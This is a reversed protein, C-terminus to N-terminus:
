EACPQYVPKHERRGYSVCQHANWNCVFLQFNDTWVKAKGEPWKRLLGVSCSTSSAALHSCRDWRNNGTTLIVVRKFRLTKKLAPLIALTWVHRLCTEYITLWQRFCSKLDTKCVLLGFLGIVNGVIYKAGMSLKLSDCHIQPLRRHWLAGVVAAQSM